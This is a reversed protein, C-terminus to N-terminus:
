IVLYETRNQLYRPVRFDRINSFVLTLRNVICFKLQKFLPARAFMLQNYEHFKQGPQVLRKQDLLLSAILTATCYDEEVLLLRKSRKLKM